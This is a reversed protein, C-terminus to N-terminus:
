ARQFLQGINGSPDAFGLTRGHSGMDCQSIITGGAAVIATEHAAIDDVEYVVVAGQPAASERPGALALNSGAIALQVWHEEDAFRVDAGLAQRYFDADRTAQGTALYVNQIKLVTM